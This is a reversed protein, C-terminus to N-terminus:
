CIQFRFCCKTRKRRRVIAFAIGVFLGISRVVDNWGPAWWTRRQERGGEQGSSGSRKHGNTRTGYAEEVAEEDDDGEWVKDVWPLLQGLAVAVVGWFALYGWSDRPIGEVKIPAIQQRDHLHSILVGYCVGVVGLASVRGMLPLFYSKFGKRPTKHPRTRKGNGQLARSVSDKRRRAREQSLAGDLDKASIPNRTELAPTEAGTGWPTGAEERDPAYGTPSYIGFLTSSTLNLISRTRSPPAGDGDAISTEPPPTQPASNDRTAMPTM